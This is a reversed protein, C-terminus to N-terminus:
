ARVQTQCQLFSKAANNKSLGGVPWTHKKFPPSGLCLPESTYGPGRAELCCIGAECGLAGSKLVKTKTLPVDLLGAPQM